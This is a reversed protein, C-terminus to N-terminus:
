ELIVARVSYKGEEAPVMWSFEMNIVRIYSYITLLFVHSVAYWLGGVYLSERVTGGVRFHCITTPWAM